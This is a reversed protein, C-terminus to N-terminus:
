CHRQQLRTSFLHGGDYPSNGTIAAPLSCLPTLAQSIIAKTNPVLYPGICNVVRAQIGDYLRATPFGQKAIGIITVTVAANGKANNSWLFPLYAFFIDVGINYVKEWLQHAQSGQNVSSTTVIAARCNFAAVLRSAKIIWGCVYDLEGIRPAGSFAHALDSKQATSQGKGGLYPPNGCLYTEKSDLNHSSSFVEAWDLRLANGTFINGTAHLPLVDLCAQLQGIHKVNSQFEAILLALRAIEAPFSKIEIGYFNTLKIWTKQAFMDGQEGRRRIIEAEIERLKIYAIVLFNGSGCAPDFVRIAAIRKRLNLLKVKSDGAKELEERLDDLLLPDLVKLINPVSTYHMGLAGREDDDAVAQIMSGFIDPNIQKWDLQGVRILYSRAIKSFTPCDLDDSFLGGNVYPFVNAWPKVGAAKRYRDDLQDNHRTPTNMAKFLELIVERTNNSQPDTMQQLTSTFLGPQNFIGTDEAFFCFILRAMFHNLAPRKADTAWEPNDKLLEVYLKNLRGTARIDIPNDKIEAVTTIGALPLFFGFHEGLKPLSCALLEGTALDEAEVLDGDTALVFKAKAKAMKPSTKLAALKSGTLGKPAVAIHINNRLLVAGAIDSANFSGRLKRLTVDRFGFAALFQFPFEAADFPAHTLESVAEEIEVANM